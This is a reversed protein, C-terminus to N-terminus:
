SGVGLQNGAEKYKDYFKKVQGCVKMYDASCHAKPLNKLKNCYVEHSCPPIFTEPLKDELRGVHGTGLAKRKFLKMKIKNELYM